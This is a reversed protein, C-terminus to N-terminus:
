IRFDTPFFTWFLEPFSTFLVRLLAKPFRSTLNCFFYVLIGEKKFVTKYARIKNIQLDVVNDDIMVFIYWTCNYEYVKPLPYCASM